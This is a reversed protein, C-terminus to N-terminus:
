VGLIHLERLVDLIKPLPDQWLWDVRIWFGTVVESYFIGEELFAPHYRGDEGMRYFEAQQRLPDVLWYERIGAGEYEVFKEGRDRGISEESVVEVALDAPGDLYTERLRDLHAASVFLLDPERGSADPGLKMVFPASRIWGLEKVEVYIRLVALLFDCVDQHRESAPSMVIVEGQIWEARTDEDCWDLFEDFSIPGKPPMRQQLEQVGTRDM